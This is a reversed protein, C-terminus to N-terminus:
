KGRKWIMVDMMEQFDPCYIESLVYGANRAARAVVISPTPILVANISSIEKVKELLGKLVGQRQHEDKVSIASLWLANNRKWCSSSEDFREDFISMQNIGESMSLTNMTKRESIM